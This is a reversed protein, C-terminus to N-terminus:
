VNYRYILPRAIVAANVSTILSFVGWVHTPPKKLVPVKLCFLFRVRIVFKENATETQLDDKHVNLITFNKLHSKATLKM